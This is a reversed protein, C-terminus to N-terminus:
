HLADPQFTVLVLSLQDRAALKGWQQETIQRVRFLTPLVANDWVETILDVKTSFFGLYNHQGETHSIELQGPLLAYWGLGAGAERIRYGALWVLMERHTEPSGNNPLVPLEYFHWDGLEPSYLVSQDPLVQTVNIDTGPALYRSQEAELTMFPQVLKYSGTKEIRM